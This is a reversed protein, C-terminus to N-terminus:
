YSKLKNKMQAVIDLITPQMKWIMQQINQRISQMRLLITLKIKIGDILLGVLKIKSKVGMTMGKKM